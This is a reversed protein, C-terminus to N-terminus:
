LQGQAPCSRDSRWWHGRKTMHSAFVYRWPIVALVLGFVIWFGM